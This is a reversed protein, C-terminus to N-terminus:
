SMFNQGLIEAIPFYWVKIAPFSIRSDSVPISYLVLTVSMSSDSCKAPAYMKKQDNGVGEWTERFGNKWTGTTGLFGNKELNRNNGSIKKIPDEIKVLIVRDFIEPM